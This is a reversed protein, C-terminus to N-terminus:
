LIAFGRTSRCDISSVGYVTSSLISSSGRNDIMKISFSSEISRFPVYGLDELHIGLSERTKRLPQLCRLFPYVAVTQGAPVRAILRTTM